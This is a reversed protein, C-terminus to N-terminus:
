FSQISGNEIKFSQYSEKDFLKKISTADIASIFVQAQQQKFLDLIMETSFPDLESLLDDILYIPPSQHKKEFSLGQAIKLASILLKQQGRSLVDAAPLKNSTLRLDARHPGYQTFGTKVEQDFHYDLTEELTQDKPWGRYYDMSILHNLNFQPLLYNLEKQFDEIYDLRIQNLTESRKELEINWPKLISLKPKQKLLANRQKILHKTQSWLKFFNKQNYFAGWDLMQCRYKAGQTLLSFSGPHLIQIPLLTTIEAQTKIHEYNLKLQHNSNKDKEIAIRQKNLENDIIESYLITNDFNHQIIRNLQTSKFSRGHSLFYIAELLSTKGSANLGEILNINPHFNLKASSINRFNTIRIQNIHM